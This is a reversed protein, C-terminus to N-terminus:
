VAPQPNHVSITNPRYLWRSTCLCSRGLRLKDGTGFNRTILQFRDLDGLASRVFVASLGLADCLQAESTLGLSILRLVYQPIISIELPRLVDAKLRTDYVPVAGEYECILTSGPIADKHIFTLEDIIM